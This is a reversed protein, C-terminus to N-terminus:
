KATGSKNQHATYTLVKDSIYLTNNVFVAVVTGVTRPVKVTENTLGITGLKAKFNGKGFGITYPVTGGRVSFKRTFSPTSTSPKLDLNVKAIVGSVYIVATQGAPNFNPDLQLTGKVAITDQAASAFNLKISMQQINLVRSAERAVGVFPNSAPNNPDTGLFVELDDPFGDGDSDNTVTLVLIESDTGISNTATLNIQYTGTAAPIGSITNGSFTLGQPLNTATFTLTPQGIATIVYSFNQITSATVALSSNIMPPNVAITITLTRSDSGATNAAIITVPFIGQTTPTGSIIGTNIDLTLGPPLNQAGFTITPSGSATITYTFPEAVGGPESLPSTIKPPSKGINIVLIKGSDTGYPNTATVMVNFSGVVTPIGSITGSNADISLGAPLGAATFSIVPSGVATLTYSFPAFQLGSAQLSVNSITPPTLEVDIDLTQQDSGIANIAILTVSTIGVPGLPTGSIINGVSTLGAPLNFVQYTITPTGSATITYIFAVNPTAQVSLPSTIKPKSPAINIVVQATGTGGRNTATVVATTSGPASPTGSIIGTSPDLVIGAPLNVASFTIPTSGTVQLTFPTLPVGDFGSIQAATITPPAPNIIITLPANVTGGPNTATVLVNYTGETTPTGDIKDVDVVLGPPLNAISFDIEPSGTASLDFTFPVGASGTVTAPFLLVPPAADIEIGLNMTTPGGRNTATLTVDTLGVANHTPTGSIINDSLTLGDPLASSTYTILQTGTAAIVYRFPVGDIGTTFAPSTFVPIAANITIFITKSVPVPTFANTATLTVPFPGNLTVAAPTPVGQIANGVLTLGSPLASDTLTITASGTVQVPYFFPVGVTGPAPDTGVISAASGSITITLQATTPPVALPNPAGGPSPPNTAPSFATLTVNFTGVTPTGVITDQVLSLGQPLGAATFVIPGIGTATIHYTLPSGDIGSVTLPSTFVPAVPPVITLTLTKTGTGIPNTASLTVTFTGAAAPTGSILGTNAKVNLNAPLVSAGYSMPNATAIIQYSFPIGVFANAQNPSVIIPIQQPSVTLVLTNSGTGGLNTAQITINYVGAATPTGTIAGTTTDVGLGAPLVMANYSTPHNSGQIDYEFPQNVVATSTLPSTIVPVSPPNITLTLTKTGLGAVNAATQTLNFTGVAAPVGSIVGTQDNLTLGAPLAGQIGFTLPNNNAMITFTFPENFIGTATSSSSIVPVLAPIVTLNFDQFGTGGGNTASVQFKYFGLTNPSGTVFGTTTNLQLGIPLATINGVTGLNPTTGYIQPNGTATIAYSFPTNLLAQVNVPSSIVPIAPLVTLALPATPSTGNANSASTTFQYTGEVLPIGSILGISTDLSLGAPLDPTLIFTSPNNDATLYFQFISGVNATATTKNTMTPKASSVSFIVIQSGTGSQNSATVVVSYLGDQTPVGSIQGSVTSVSLGPPLGAADFSQPNNFATITYATFTLGNTAQASLPSSIIPSNDAIKAIIIDNDDVNLGSNAEAPRPIINGNTDTDEVTHM